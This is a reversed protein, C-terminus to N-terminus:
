KFSIGFFLSAGVSAPLNNGFRIPIGASVVLSTKKSPTFLKYFVTSEGFRGATEFAIRTIMGYGKKFRFIPGPDFILNSVKSLGKTTTIIPSLDFSFGFQDSYLINVGTALGISFTGSFNWATTKNNTSVVPLFLVMYTGIKPYAPVEPSGTVIAAPPAQCFLLGPVSVNLVFLLISIRKITL